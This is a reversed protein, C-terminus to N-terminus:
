LRKKVNMLVILMLLFNPHYQSSEKVDNVFILEIHIVSRYRFLLLIFSKSSFSFIKM